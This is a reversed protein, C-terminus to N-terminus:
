RGVQGPEMIIQCGGKGDTEAIIRGRHEPLAINPMQQGSPAQVTVALRDSSGGSGTTERLQPEDMPKMDGSASRQMVQCPM